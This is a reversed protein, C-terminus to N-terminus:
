SRIRFSTVNQNEAQKGGGGIRIKVGGCVYDAGVTEGDGGAGKRRVKEGDVYVARVREGTPLGHQACRGRFAIRGGKEGERGKKRVEM